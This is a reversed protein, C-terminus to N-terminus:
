PLVQNAQLTLRVGWIFIGSGLADFVLSYVSNDTNVPGGISLGSEGIVEVAGANSSTVGTTIAGASAGSTWNINNDYLKGNVTIGGGADQVAAQWAVLTMESPIPVNFHLKGALISRWVAVNSSVIIEWYQNNTANDHESVADATSIPRYITRTSSFRHGHATDGDAILAGTTELDGNAKIDLVDSSPTNPRLFRAHLQTDNTNGPVLSSINNCSQSQDQAFDQCGILYLGIGYGSGLKASARYLRVKMSSGSEITFTPTSGDLGKLDLTTSSAVSDIIYLGENNNSSEYIEALDFDELIEADLGTFTLDVGGRTFTIVNSAALIDIAEEGQLFTSSVDLLNRRILVGAQTLIRMRADLGVEADEPDIPFSTSPVSTDDDKQIRLAANAIDESMLSTAQQVLEMAQSDVTIIRGSGSGSLGDYAKDLTHGGGGSLDNQHSQDTVSTAGVIVGLVCYEDGYPNPGAVGENRVSPGILAVVYDNVDTSVTSQGFNGVTTIQNSPASHTILCDEIAISEDLSMPNVLWVKVTRGTYDEGAVSGLTSTISNVDFTITGDGNDTVSDPANREGIAEEMLDYEPVGTRPNTYIGSVVEIYKLAIWYNNGITDAYPINTLDSGSMEFVHGANDCGELPDPTLSFIDSGYNPTITVPYTFLGSAPFVRSMSERALEDLYDRFNASIRNQSLFRKLALNVYKDGTSM